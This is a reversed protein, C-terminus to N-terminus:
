DSHYKAVIWVYSDFKPFRKLSIKSEIPISSHLIAWTSELAVSSPVFQKPLGLTRHFLYTLDQDKRLCGLQSWLRGPPATWCLSFSMRFDRCHCGFIWTWSLLQLHPFSLWTVQPVVNFFTTMRDRRQVDWLFQFEDAWYLLMARVEGQCHLSDAVVHQSLDQKRMTGFDVLSSQWWSCHFSFSGHLETFWSSLHEKRALEALFGSTQPAQLTHM